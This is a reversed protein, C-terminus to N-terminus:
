SQKASELIEIIRDLDEDTYFEIEIHGKGEASARIRVQTALIARLRSEINSFIGYVEKNPSVLRASTSSGAKKAGAEKEKMLSRALEETKRVSLGDSVVKKWVEIQVDRSPLNVLTRAHGITLESKRLSNQIEGPLKLLRLFNTVTTRDKSVKQAVEEQTLDCEDILRQYGQAIEMSNLHERQVNEILALELLEADSDVEKVFAPIMELGAARSARLRREGAVLEYGDEVKRVTIPQIVGHERISDTLEQLAQVDFEERPQFPNRRISNVPIENTAIYEREPEAREPEVNQQVPREPPKEDTPILANLGKGLVVKMKAM